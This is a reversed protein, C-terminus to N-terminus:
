NSIILKKELKTIGIVNHEVSNTQSVGDKAWLEICVNMDVQKFTRWNLMGAKETKM